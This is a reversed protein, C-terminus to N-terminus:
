RIRVPLPLDLILQMAATTTDLTLRLAHPTSIKNLFVAMVRSGVTSAISSTQTLQFISRYGTNDTETFWMWQTASYSTDVRAYPFSFVNTGATQTLITNREVIPYYLCSEMTPKLEIGLSETQCMSPSAATLIDTATLGRTYYRADAMELKDAVPGSGGITIGSLAPKPVSFTFSLSQTQVIQVGTWSVVSGFAQQLFYDVSVGMHVWMNSPLGTFQLAYSDECAKVNVTVSGDSNQMAQLSSRGPLTKISLFEQATSPLSHFFVWATLAYSDV